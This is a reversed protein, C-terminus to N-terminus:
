TCSMSSKRMARANSVLEKSLRDFNTTQLKDMESTYDELKFNLM